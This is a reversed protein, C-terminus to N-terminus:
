QQCESIVFKIFSIFDLNNDIFYARSENKNNKTFENIHLENFMDYVKDMFKEWNKFGDFNFSSNYNPTASFTIISYSEYSELNINIEEGIYDDNYELSDVLYYIKQKLRSELIDFLLELYTEIYNKKSTNAINYKIEKLDNESMYENFIDRIHKRYSSEFNQLYNENEIYDKFLSLSYKENINNIRTKIYEM